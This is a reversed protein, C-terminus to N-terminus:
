RVHPRIVAEYIQRILAKDAEPLEAGQTRRGPLNRYGVDSPFIGRLIMLYPMVGPISRLAMIRGFMETAEKRHGANWLEFTRQFIDACFMSPCYGDFGLMMENLMAVCGKGAFIAVKDGTLKRIPGIRDLPEGAEDKICSLTPVQQYVKDVLDVSMTKQTQLVLPLPVSAGVTKYYAAMANEDAGDPPLSIIAPAGHAAAHAAFNLATSLQRDRVQVGIVVKVATGKAAALLAEAGALRESDDLMEWDSALQPWILGPVGTRQCFDVQRALSVLDLKDTPTFPTQAIPFLGRFFSPSAAMVPVVTGACMSAAAMGLILDRRNATM